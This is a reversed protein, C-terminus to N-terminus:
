LFHSMREQRHGPAHIVPVSGTSQRRHMQAHCELYDEYSFQPIGMVTQSERRQATTKASFSPVCYVDRSWRRPQLEASTEMTLLSSTESPEAATDIVVPKKDLPKKVWQVYLHGTLVLLSLAPAFLAWPSFERGDNSEEVESPTRLIFSSIIGPATFGAVSVVMSMVAQMSGQNHRLTPKSDIVMTFISRTPSGLFPFAATCLVVPVVFLAVTSSSKWLLYMLTYGCTQVILGFTLLTENSVGRSSLQFVLLIFVLILLSTGGFLASINVPGWGLVHSAAPALGTDMLQFNCNLTFSSLLPVFVETCFLADWVTEKKSTGSGNELGDTKAVDEEGHYDDEQKEPEELFFYIGLMALLNGLFLFLGVSNFPTLVIEMSGWTVTADVGKLFVNLGPATVMGLVRVMSLVASAQTLAAKDVVQAVYTFGLTSNAAGVGGMLRGLLILGMAVSTRHFSSAMFYVLGGLSATTLSVMYPARFSGYRDCWFGLVPKFLFSSFSYSSLIIGYMEYSGGNALIYFVISPATVMYSISDMLGVFAQPALLRLPIGGNSGDAKTTM